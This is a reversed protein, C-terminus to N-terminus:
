SAKREQTKHRIILRAVETVMESKEPEKIFGASEVAANLIKNYRPAFLRGETTLVKECERIVKLAIEGANLIIM